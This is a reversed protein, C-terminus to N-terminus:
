EGDEKREDFYGEVLSRTTNDAGTWKLLGNRGRKVQSPDFGALYNIREMYRRNARDGHWMHVIRRNLYGVRGAVYGGAVEAWQKFKSRVAINYHGMLHGETRGYFALAMLSDGGGTIHYDFLGCRNFLERRAAWAFGPHAVGFDWRHAASEVMCKAVSTRTDAAAGDRDLLDVESFMQIVAHSELLSEAEAIWPAGCWLVDADVWAVKTFEDPLSDALINLLTEKHWLKDTGIMRMIRPHAPLHFKGGYGLEIGFWDVGPIGDLFRLANIVPQRYQCPNFFCFCLALKGGLPKLPEPLPPPQPQSPEVPKRKPTRPHFSWKGGYHDFFVGM